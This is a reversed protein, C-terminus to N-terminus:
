ANGWGGEAKKQSRMSTTYMYGVAHQQKRCMKLEKKVMDQGCFSAEEKCTMAPVIGRSIYAPAGSRCISAIRKAVNERLAEFRLLQWRAGDM